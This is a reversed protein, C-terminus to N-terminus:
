QIIKKLIYLADSFCENTHGLYMYVGANDTSISVLPIQIKIVGYSVIKNNERRYMLYDIRRKGKHRGDDRDSEM